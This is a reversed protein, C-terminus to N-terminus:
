NLVNLARNYAVELWPLFRELDNSEITPGMWIRLSPKALAHGLFDFGVNEEECIEVIRKLFIWKGKESKSRYEKSIIDLCAIHHARQNEEVFFCFIGQQCIWQQM